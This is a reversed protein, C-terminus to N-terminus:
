GRDAVLSATTTGASAAGVVLTVNAATAATYIPVGIGYAKAEAALTVTGFDIKTVGGDQLVLTCTAGASSGYLYIGRVQVRTSAAGTATLTQQTTAASTGTTTLLTAAQTPSSGWPATMTAAAAAGQTVTATGIVTVPAPAAAGQMRQGQIYVPMNAFKEVSCFSITWTTTTAPASTGNYAWLFVYLDLNDDPMNEMRNARLTMNPTTTSARLSDALYANRGDCHIQAIHGPSATTLITATVSTDAWGRRQTSFTSNTATTGTYLNQVYSHGFLDLTCSGSGPWGAVTFNITNADPISAIAYRGPVGAAGVIGGIMMFQGVNVATYGHSAKTVSISTASNITCSLTEGILDALLVAFNNQVIRQSLVTSYRFALAGQWSRVSRALFDQNTSTGTTIALAGAAQSYGMGTGLNLLTFESALTSAGVDSFSCNWIDEGVLRSPPASVNNYPITTTMPPLVAAIGADTVPLPNGSTVPSTAGDGGIDLKSYPYKVGGVDDAAFTDGGSGPNAVFNDALRCRTWM